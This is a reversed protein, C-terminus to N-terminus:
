VNGPSALDEAEPILGREASVRVADKRKNVGIKKFLSKLRYKVTDPSMGILRAIEKNSRGQSLYFLVETEAENFPGSGTTEKRLGSLTKEILKLFQERFRDVQTEGNLADTLCPRVFRDAEIFPSVISQHMAIGVAEDFASRSQDIDGRRRCGFALLLNADILLRGAGRKDAWAIFGQLEEIAAFDEGISLHLKVRSLTAAVAVPRYEPSQQEMTDAFQDLKVLASHETLLEADPRHTLHLDLECIDALIELQRLRRWQATRRAKAIVAKAEELTGLLAAIRAQTFYAAAYVDVWGDSQEMHSLAWELRDRAQEFAGQEYLLEARFASCNAALDSAEGFHDDITTACAKLISESERNRGQARKIRAEVFLTFVESYLSNCAQYHERARLTPQLARELWGGEYYKAAITESINAFVLHDNTPIKRLLSERSLLDDFTVPKNEYDSLTDDVVRIETQLDPSEDRVSRESFFRDFAVRAAGLEGLKMHLYVYALMLRVRSQIMPDPLNALAFEVVGQMGQPILRWGGAAELIEALVAQDSSLVAHNVAEVVQDQGAFWLAVMRQIRKYEAADSKRFVDRVYEAFLQHYRFWRRDANVANLFVGQQELQELVVGGDERDCVLNILEGSITDLVATQMVIKRLHDPLAILVQESLYRAVESGSQGMRALLLDRDVGRKLSISALQVAIPWGETRDLIADFDTQALTENERLLLSRTEHESFRLDQASLEVFQREAMLVSQGISPNDRTSFVFHCSAPAVRVLSGLFDIVKKSGAHHLDDLILIFPESNDSLYKVLASLAARPPLDPSISTGDGGVGDDGIAIMVSRLLREFERDDRDLTLWAFQLGRRELDQRWQYLLSTKGYGAPARILTLRNELALNLRELLRDRKLQDGM